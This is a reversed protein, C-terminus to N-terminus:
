RNSFIEYHRKQDSPSQKNIKMESNKMHPGIKPALMVTYIFTCNNIAWLMNLQSYYNVVLSSKRKDVLQSWHMQIM